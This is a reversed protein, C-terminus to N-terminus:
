SGTIKRRVKRYTRSASAGARQATTVMSVAAFGAIGITAWEGWGWQSPDASTFLGSGFLGTQGLGCTGGCSACGLGPWAFSKAIEAGSGRSPALFNYPPPYFLWSWNQTQQYM